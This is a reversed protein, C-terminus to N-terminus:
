TGRGTPVLPPTDEPDFTPLDPAGCLGKNVATETYDKEVLDPDQIYRKIESTMTDIDVFAVKGCGVTVLWGNLLPRIIIDRM